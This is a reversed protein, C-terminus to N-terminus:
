KQWPRRTAAVMAATTMAAAAAVAVAAVMEAAVTEEAAIAVGKQNFATQGRVAEGAEAM